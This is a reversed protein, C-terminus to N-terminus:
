GCFQALLKVDDPVFIDKSKTVKWKMNDMKM